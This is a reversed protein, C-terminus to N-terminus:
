GWKPLRRTEVLMFGVGLFFFPLDGFQPRESVFNGTVLLSLVLMQCVMLVYSVPYVRRPMYFFPWDDTSVDAHLAPNAFSESVDRFGARDILEAAIKWDKDSSELFIVSDDYYSMVCQPPRGDFAQQLMLYIKRGLEPSLVCFSLSITGDSKLRARAERLGQVTYVFSDLRVSSAQSLLTHSDLLGYVIMDYRKDTTRLFSRADNLEAHVRPDDYPKEPHRTRGALLIAPDIEIADVHRAGSRLAAAVDNGTGAGVIAIDNLSTRTTYPFDYYHRTSQLKPDTRAPSLDFIRQYYQGAARIRTLGTSEDSGMELLQYPSYVRQWSPTVPWDLAVLAVISFAAATLLYGPTRVTFLLIGMCCVAFWVAPPTWLASVLLMLLVGALSGLLNLGYARLNTRRQLLRGCVQGVPLFILVTILFVVALLFYVAFQQLSDSKGAGMNLQERLPMARISALLFGDGGFRLAIMFVFQWAMMPISLLLPISGRGSLAYGLGLGVFCALLGFNKYFAFFEFVTGQWRIISLELFLSLAAAGAIALDVYGSPFLDLFEAQRTANRELAPGAKKLLWYFLVCALSAWVALLPLVLLVPRGGNSGQLLWGLIVIPAFVSGVWALGILRLFSRIM